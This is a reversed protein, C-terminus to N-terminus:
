AGANLTIQGNIFLKVPEARQNFYFIVAGTNGFVKLVTQKIRQHGATSIARSQAQIQYLIQHLTITAGHLAAAM